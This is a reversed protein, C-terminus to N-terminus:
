DPWRNHLWLWQDPRERIWGELVDNIETMLTRADGQRDGTQPLELPAFVTMRFHCGKTRELRVPVLPCSFRLALQAPAAVTMTPLGFFPVEIGDNMKQDVLMGLRRGEGLVALAKRAGGAGKAVTEGHQQGRIRGLLGAVLPNNPERYTQACPLGAWATGGPLLEWNGLHGSFLIATGDGTQLAAINEAGALEIRGPGTEGTITRIHPYEGMIRGLNDWMGLILRAVEVPALDPLARAM